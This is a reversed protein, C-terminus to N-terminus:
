PVSEGNDIERLKDAYYQEIARLKAVEEPDSEHEAKLRALDRRTEYLQRKRIDLVEAAEVEFFFLGDIAPWLQWGAVALAAIGAVSYSAKKAGGNM